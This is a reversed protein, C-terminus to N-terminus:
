ECVSCAVPPLPATVHLRAEPPSGVPKVSFPAVPAILPVGVTGPDYLKVTVAVSEELGACTLVLPGSDMVILACNIILVVLKGFPV